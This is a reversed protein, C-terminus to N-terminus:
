LGLATYTTPTTNGPWNQDEEWVYTIAQSGSVGTRIQCIYLGRTNPAGTSSPGYLYMNPTGTVAQTGTGAYVPQVIYTNAM